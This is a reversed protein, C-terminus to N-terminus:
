HENNNRRYIVWKTHIDDYNPLVIITPFKTKQEIAM